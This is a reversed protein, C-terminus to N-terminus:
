GPRKFLRAVSRWISAPLGTKGIGVLALGAMGGLVLECVLMLLGHLGGPMSAILAEVAHAAPPVGHLLIQGGVLLMAVTGVVSIGRMLWPAFVLIARGAAARPGAGRALFEGLDDVKVLGAVAGYVGVTMVISVLYLVGVQTALPETAVEGLTIAIIEASLIFDTRIAGATRMAEYAIPDSPADPDSSGPPQGFHLVKEVGEFCLFAGGAMLIPTISGPAVANLVLAGPALVLAKNRISGKAVAWILPLERERLIGGTQEATVAMDDTVVGSTKKAAVGALTAVDDAVSAIDDLLAILGSVPM